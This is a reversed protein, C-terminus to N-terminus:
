FLKYYVSSKDSMSSAYLYLEKMARNAEPAKLKVFWDLLRLGSLKSYRYSAGKDRIQQKLEEETGKFDSPSFKDLLKFIEDTIDKEKKGSTQKCDLFSPEDPVNKFEARKLLDRVLSGQVKGMAAFEGKLELKWDGKNSGAFNRAQFSDFSSPGHNFYVDISSFAKLRALTERKKFLIGEVKQLRSVGVKNQPKFRATGGLKKLSIGILSKRPVDKGSKISVAEDSFTMQLFNNLCDVTTEQQLMKLINNKESKKIMWIDAPNWKDEQAINAEKSPKVVKTFRNSIEKEIVKDGRLFEWGSGKIENYITNAGLIFSDKWFYPLSKIDEITAGPADVYKMGEIYDEDTLCDEPREPHCELDKNKLYRIATFLAMGSEQITTAASGGGSGGSNTPKIEVRIVQVKSGVERIVLDLQEKYPNSKTGLRVETIGIDKGDDLQDNLYSAVKDRTITRKAQPVFVKLAIQVTKESDKDEVKLVDMLVVNNEAGLTDDLAEMLSSFSTDNRDPIKVAM